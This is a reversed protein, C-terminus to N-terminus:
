KEEKQHERARFDREQIVNNRLQQQCHITTFRNAASKPKVLAVRLFAFGLFSAITSRLSLSSTYILIEFIEDWLRLSEVARKRSKGATRNYRKKM